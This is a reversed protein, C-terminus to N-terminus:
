AYARGCLPTYRENRGYEQEDHQGAEAHECHAEANQLCLGRGRAQAGRLGKVRCTRTDGPGRM